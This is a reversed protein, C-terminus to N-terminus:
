TKGFLIVSYIFLSCETHMGYWKRQMACVFVCHSTNKTSSYFVSLATRRAQSKRSKTWDHGTHWVTWNERKRERKRHINKGNGAIHERSIDAVAIRIRSHLEHTAFLCKIHMPVQRHGCLWNMWMFDDTESTTTAPQKKEDEEIEHARKQRRKIRTDGCSCQKM